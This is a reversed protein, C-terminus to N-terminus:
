NTIQNKQHELLPLGNNYEEFDEEDLKMTLEILQKQITPWSPSM